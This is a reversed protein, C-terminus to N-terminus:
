AIINRHSVDRNKNQEPCYAHCPFRPLRSAIGPISALEPRIFRVGILIRRSMKVLTPFEFHAGHGYPLISPLMDAHVHAVQSFSAM